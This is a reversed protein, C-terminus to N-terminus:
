VGIQTKGANIHTQPTGNYGNTKSTCNIGIREVTAKTTQQKRKALPIMEEDSPYTDEEVSSLSSLSETDM